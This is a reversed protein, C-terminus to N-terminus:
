DVSVVTKVLEVLRDLTPPKTLFMKAGCALSADRDRPLASSTFMTVPISCLSEDAKLEALVILGNKRPLNVDMVILDPRPAAQYPIRKYLFSLAQDGDVVRHLEISNTTEKLAFAFLFAAANDDEVHLVVRVPM